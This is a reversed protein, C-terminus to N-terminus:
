GNSQLVCGSFFIFQGAPLLISQWEDDTLEVRSEEALGRDSRISGISYFANQAGEERRIQYEIGEPLQRGSLFRGTGTYRDWTVLFEEMETLLGRGDLGVTAKNPIYVTVSAAGSLQYGWSRGDELTVTLSGDEGDQLTYTYLGAPLDVSVTYTGESLGALYPMEAFACASFLLLLAAAFAILNKKM